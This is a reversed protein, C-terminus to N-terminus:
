FEQDMMRVLDTVQKYNNTQVFWERFYGREDSWMPSEALWAGEIGIPKFKM